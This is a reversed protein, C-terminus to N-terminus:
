GMRGAAYLQGWTGPATAAIPAGDATIMPQLDEYAIVGNGMQIRVNPIETPTAYRGVVSLDPAYGSQAAIRHVLAV